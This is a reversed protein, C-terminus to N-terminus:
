LELYYLITGCIFIMPSSTASRDVYVFIGINKLTIIITLPM